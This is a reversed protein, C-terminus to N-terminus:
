KLIDKLDSQFTKTIRFTAELEFNADVYEVSLRFYQSSVFSQTSENKIYKLIYLESGKKIDYVQVLAGSRDFKLKIIDGIKFSYKKIFFRYIHVFLAKIAFFLLTALIISSMVALTYISYQIMDNFNM